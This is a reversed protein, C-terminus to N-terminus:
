IILLGDLMVAAPTSLTGITRRPDETLVVLDAPAGEELVVAGLFKRAKWTAGALAEAAPMCKAMEMAERALDGHAISTGADTGALLTVGAERM